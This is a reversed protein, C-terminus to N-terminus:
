HNSKVKFIVVNLCWFRPYSVRGNSKIGKEDIRENGNNRRAVLPTSVAPASVVSVAAADGATSSATTGTTTTTPQKSTQKRRNSSQWTGLMEPDSYLYAESSTDYAGACNFPRRTARNAAESDSEASNTPPRRVQSKM